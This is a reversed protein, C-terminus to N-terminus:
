RGQEEGVVQTMCAGAGVVVVGLLSLGSVQPLRGSAAMWVQVGLVVLGLVMVVLGVKAVAGVPALDEEVDDVKISEKESM